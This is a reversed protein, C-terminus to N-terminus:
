FRKQIEFDKLLFYRTKCFLFLFPFLFRLGNENKLTKETLGGIRTKEGTLLTLFLVELCVKSLMLSTLSHTM